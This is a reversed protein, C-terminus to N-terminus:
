RLQWPAFVQPLGLATNRNTIIKSTPLTQFGWRWNENSTTPKLVFCLKSFLGVSIFSTTIYPLQGAIRFHVCLTAQHWPLYLILDKEEGASCDKGIKKSVGRRKKFSVAIQYKVNYRGPKNTNLVIALWLHPAVNFVFIPWM